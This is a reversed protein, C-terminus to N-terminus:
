PWRRRAGTRKTAKKKKRTARPSVRLQIGGQAPAEPLVRERHRRPVGHSAGGAEGQLFFFLPDIKKDNFASGGGPHRLHPAM